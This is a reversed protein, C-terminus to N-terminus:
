PRLVDLEGQGSILSGESAGVNTAEGGVDGGRVMQPHQRLQLEIAAEAEIGVDHRPLHTGHLQDRSAADFDHDRGLRDM